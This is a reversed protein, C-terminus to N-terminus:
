LIFTAKAHVMLGNQEIYSVEFRKLCNCTPAEFFFIHNESCSYCRKLILNLALFLKDTTFLIIKNWFYTIFLEPVKDPTKSSVLHIQEQKLPRLHHLLFSTEWSEKGM